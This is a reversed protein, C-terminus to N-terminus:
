IDFAPRPEEGLAAVSLSAPRPAVGNRVRLHWWLRLITQEANVINSVKM